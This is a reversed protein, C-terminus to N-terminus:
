EVFVLVEKGLEVLIFLIWHEALVELRENWHYLRLMVVGVKVIRLNISQPGLFSIRRLGNSSVGCKM